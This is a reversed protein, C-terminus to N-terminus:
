AGKSDPPSSPPAHSALVWAVTWQPKFVDGSDLDVLRDSEYDDDVDQLDAELKAAEELSDVFHIWEVAWEDHHRVLVFRALETSDDPPECGDALTLSGLLAHLAQRRALIRSTLNTM